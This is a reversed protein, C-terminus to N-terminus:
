ILINPLKATRPSLPGSPGKRRKTIKKINM